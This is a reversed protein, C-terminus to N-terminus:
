EGVPHWGDFNTASNQPKEARHTVHNEIHTVPQQRATRQKVYKCTGTCAAQSVIELIAPDPRFWEGSINQDRFIRHLRREDDVRGQIIVISDPGGALATTLSGMRSLPSTSFGIKIANNYLLFYIYGREYSPKRSVPLPLNKAADREADRWAVAYVDDFNRHGPECALRVKRFGPRRLYWRKTGHRDFDSMLYKYQRHPM